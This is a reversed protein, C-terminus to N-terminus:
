SADKKNNRIKSIIFILLILIWIPWIGIIWFFVGVLGHLGNTLSTNLLYIFSNQKEPIYEPTVIEYLELSLTAMKIQKELYILQKESSNIEEELRRIKEEVSMIDQVTEAKQLLQRYRRLFTKKTELRSSLDIHRETVDESSITQYNVKRIESRQALENLFNDFSAAPILLSLRCSRRNGSNYRRDESVIGKYDALLNNVSYVATDLDHVEYGLSANQVVKRDASGALMKSVARPAMAYSEAADAMVLNNENKNLVLPDQGCSALIWVAAFLLFGYRKM